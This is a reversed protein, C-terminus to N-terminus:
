SDGGASSIRDGDFIVFGSQAAPIEPDVIEDNIPYVTVLQQRSAFTTNGHQARLQVRAKLKDSFRKTEESTLSVCLCYPDADAVSCDSKEKVIPLTTDNGPQWFTIKASELEDVKYPLKFKFQATTGRIM